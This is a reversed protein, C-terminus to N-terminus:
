QRLLTIGHNLVQDLGDLFAQAGVSTQSLPTQTTEGM